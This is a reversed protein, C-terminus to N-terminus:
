RRLLAPLAHEIVRNVNVFDHGGPQERYGVLDYGKRLVLDRFNRAAKIMTLPEPGPVPLASNELLGVSVFLRVDVTPKSAYRRTLWQPQEPEEDPSTPAPAFWLSPSLALAAGFADPRELALWASALGGFSMGAITVDERSASVAYNERLWPLLEDAIATPLAPDCAMETMRSVVTLNAWFVGIVPPITGDAIMRDLQEDLRGSRLAMEGDLLVVVPLATSGDYGPPTYVSVTREGPLAQANLSHTDLKGRLPGGDLSSFTEADPLTLVSEWRDATAVGEPDGGLLGALPYVRDPNFPDARGSDFTAKMYAAFGTEDSMLAIVQALDTGISPPDLQFQYPVSNRPDALISAYWVGTDQIRRLEEVIKIPPSVPFLQCALSVSDAEGIYVFSVRVQDTGEVQEVLPGQAARLDAVLADLAAEPDRAHEAIFREIRPSDAM